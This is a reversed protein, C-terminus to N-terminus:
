DYEIFIRDQGAVRSPDTIERLENKEVLMDVCALMLWTDGAIYPAQLIEQMRMAGSAKIHKKIHDRIKVFLSLGAETFIKPREVEYSYM